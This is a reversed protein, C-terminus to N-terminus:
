RAPAIRRDGSAGNSAAKLAEREGAYVHISENLRTLEFIQRYYDSLGYALLEQNQRRVRVLLRALLGIGSSNMYELESMNLIIFHTSNSSTLAYADMLHNESTANLDGHIDLISAETSIRRMLISLNDNPM